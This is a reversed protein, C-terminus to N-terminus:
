ECGGDLKRAALHRAEIFKNKLSDPLSNIGTFMKRAKMRNEFLANERASIRDGSFSTNMVTTFWDNLGGRLAYTNNYGLGRAIMLAYSSNIDGNSYFIYKLKRNNLIRDPDTSLFDSYPFNVSGPINFKGFEGPARLDIFQISKDESALYVAAEDATVYLNSDSATSLLVPLRASFSRGSTLPLIALIVALCCLIVSLKVRENM